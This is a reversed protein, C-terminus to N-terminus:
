NDYTRYPNLRRLRAVIEQAEAQNGGERYLALLDELAEVHDPRISLVKALAQEKSYGAETAASQSGYLRDALAFGSWRDLPNLGYALQVMRQSEEMKGGSEALWLAMNLSSAKYANELSMPSKIPLQFLDKIYTEFSDRSRLLALTLNRFNEEQKFRIRPLAFEVVPSWLDQVPLRSDRKVKRWYRSFWTEIGEGGSIYDKQSDDLKEFIKFVAALNLQENKGVLAVRFGDVFIYGHEFVSAFTNEIVRFSYEDFQNLAIWQVFVGNSSLKKKAQQFSQISLLDGRGILDPHFLDGVIIDYTKQSRKLFRRGDELFLRAKEGVNDNVESFYNKTAELAGKSLEVADISIHPLKSIGSISIGTGVGLFLIEKAGPNLIYPLRSQNKQVQVATYESSADMRQLDGLLLRDGISDSVVHTTGLATERAFVTESNKMSIPLLDSVGFDKGVFIGGLLAVCLAGYSYVNRSIFLSFASFCLGAVVISASVGLVPILVFGTVLGGIASGLSNSAYLRPSEAHPNDGYLSSLLPFLAGFGITCPLTLLLVLVGQQLLASYLGAFKQSEILYSASPFILTVLYAYSVIGICIIPIANKNSFLKSVFSGMAIGLLISALIIAMVYETRLLVMGFLRTWIIELSIVGFGVLAYMFLVNRPYKSTPSPVAATQNARMVNRSLFLAGLGVLIAALGLVLNSTKWGFVPLILLPCLAGFVGGLTNLGYILGVSTNSGSFQRLVAPFGLGMAFAPVSLLFFIFVFQVLYLISNSIGVMLETSFSDISSLLFSLALAYVGVFIEVVGYVLIPNHKLLFRTRGVYSGM